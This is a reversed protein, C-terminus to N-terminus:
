PETLGLALRTEARAASLEKQFQPNTMMLGIMAYAVSKSAVMDGSWHVGCVLRNQAYDDARVFIADRKEPIIMALVLAELYGTTGHGSPYAYDNLDTKTKCVPKLTADFHYPRPRRFFKKAPNVIVSENGHVHDSLVSTLPLSERDFKPGLVDKFIFISEELDDSQAHAIQDPTRTTELRHLLALDAKTAVSETPAPYPLLAAADLQQATVFVVPVTKQATQEQPRAEGVLVAAITVTVIFILPHIRM